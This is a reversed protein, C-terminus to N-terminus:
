EFNAVARLKSAAFAGPSSFFFFFVGLFWVCGVETLLVLCWSLALKLGAKEACVHCFVLVTAQHACDEQRLLGHTIWHCLADVLRAPM